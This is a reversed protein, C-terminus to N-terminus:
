DRIECDSIAFNSKYSLYFKRFYELNRHSFGKGYEKTLHGSLEKLVSESYAARDKGHQKLDNLVMERVIM